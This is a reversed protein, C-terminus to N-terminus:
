DRCAETSLGLLEAILTAQATSVRATRSIRRIAYRSPEIADCVLFADLPDPLFQRKALSTTDLLM